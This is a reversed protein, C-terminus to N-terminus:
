AFARSALLVYPVCFGARKLTFHETAPSFAVHPKGKTEARSEVPETASREAKSTPKGAVIASDSKGRGHMM